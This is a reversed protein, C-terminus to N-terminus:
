PAAGHGEGADRDGTEAEDAPSTIQPSSLDEPHETRVGQERAGRDTRRDNDRHREATGDTMSAEDDTPMKGTDGGSRAHFRKGAHIPGAPPHPDRGYTREDQVQGNRGKIRL